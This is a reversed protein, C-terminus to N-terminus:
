NIQNHVVFVVRDVSFLVYGFIEAIIDKVVYALQVLSVMIKTILIIMM